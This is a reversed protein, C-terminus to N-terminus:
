RRHGDSGAHPALISIYTHGHGDAM